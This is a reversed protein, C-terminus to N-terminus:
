EKKADYCGGNSTCCDEEPDYDACGLCPNGLSCYKCDYDGMEQRMECQTM